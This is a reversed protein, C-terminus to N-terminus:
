FGLGKRSLVKSISEQISTKDVDYLDIKVTRMEGDVVVTGNMVSRGRSNIYVQMEVVEFSPTTSKAM